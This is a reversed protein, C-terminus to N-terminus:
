TSELRKRWNAQTATMTLRKARHTFGNVGSTRRQASGCVTSPPTLLSGTKLLYASRKDPRESM